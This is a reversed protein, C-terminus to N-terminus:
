DPLDKAIRERDKLEGKTLKRELSIQPNSTQFDKKRLITKAIIKNAQNLFPINIDTRDDSAVIEKFKSLFDFLEKKKKGLRKFFGILEANSIEKDNRPDNLRDFFHNSTLDVDVPDLQKDAFTDLQKVDKKDIKEKLPYIPKDDAHVLNLNVENGVKINHKKCYGGPLELVNDAMGSYKPCPTQKCPPCNHHIKTIKEGKIFIIDLPIKCGEMHFDKQSVQNYPFVMGGKMEDRGAMGMVQKEPTDAVELPIIIDDIRAASTSHNAFKEENLSMMTDYSKTKLDNLEGIFDTRRLVKFALNEVSYEGGKELGSARM